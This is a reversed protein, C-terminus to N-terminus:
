LNQMNQVSQSRVTRFDDAMVSELRQMLSSKLIQSFDNGIFVYLIPSLFSNAAALTAGVKIGIQLSDQSLRKVDLELLVFTHYPVWCMFFCSILAAMIKYPKTSRVSMGRLKAVLVSSCLVIVVFPALFGCTFRTLAVAKHRSPDAYIVRCSIVDGRVTTQRVILSPLTLLAAMGWVLAVVAFAGRVTRHNRSWVPFTAVVCRDASILVLLFVSSYMNLFLASSTLKCMVLGFPWHSTLMYVVELPLLACFLLNSIALSLYWITVVTRKMKWGCIWIVVSNGALGVVCVLINVAVLFPTLSAHHSANNLAGFVSIDAETENDPTYDCYEIYDVSM